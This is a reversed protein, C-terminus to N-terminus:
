KFLPIPAALVLIRTHPPFNILVPDLGDLEDLESNAVDAVEEVALTLTTADDVEVRAAAAVSETDQGASLPFVHVPDSPATKMTSHETSWAPPSKVNTYVEM